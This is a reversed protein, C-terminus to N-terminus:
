ILHYIVFIFTKVRLFNFSNFIAFFFFFDDYLFRKNKRIQVNEYQRIYNWKKWVYVCVCVCVCVYVCVCVCM